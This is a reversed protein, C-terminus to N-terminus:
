KMKQSWGMRRPSSQASVSLPPLSVLMMWMRGAIMRYVRLFAPKRFKLLLMPPLCRDPAGRSCEYAVVVAVAGGVVATRAAVPASPRAVGVHLSRHM